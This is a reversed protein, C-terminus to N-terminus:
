AIVNANQQVPAIFEQLWVILQSFLQQELSLIREEAGLIKSEYEKLEETIYREANVLTQKRIWEEPVKDKHTNRVEIYYGFVNNSAIKLSTIGTRETERKLMQDLHDKGRFALDKLEDLEASYGKAIVNGKLINVPADEQLLEKIKERVLDCTDLQEGLLRLSENESQLILQKIPVIAELSNKLQVTGRPNVKGTGVKSILRELDAIQKIGFQLKQLTGENEKLYSIVEHRRRIREINKLPLALWRKLM